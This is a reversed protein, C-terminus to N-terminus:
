ALAPRCLYFKRVPSDIAKQIIGYEIESIDKVAGDKYLINIHENGPNYMRNEAIGNFVFYKVEESTLSLQQM